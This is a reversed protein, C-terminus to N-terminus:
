PYQRSFIGILRSLYLDAVANALMQELSDANLFSADALTLLSMRM